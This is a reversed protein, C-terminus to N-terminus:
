TASAHTNIQPDDVWFVRQFVSSFYCKQHNKAFNDFQQISLDGCSSRCVSSTVKKFKGIWLSSIASYVDATDGCVMACISWRSAENQRNRISRSTSALRRQETIRVSTELNNIRHQNQNLVILVIM